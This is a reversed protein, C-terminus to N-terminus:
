AKGADDTVEIGDGKVIVLPPEKEIARANTYPHFHHAVDKRAYDPLSSTM